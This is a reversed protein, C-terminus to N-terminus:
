LTSYLVLDSCQHKCVNCVCVGKPIGMRTTGYIFATINSTIRRGRAQLTHRQSCMATLTAKM